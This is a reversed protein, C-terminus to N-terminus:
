LALQSWISEDWVARNIYCDFVAMNLNWFLIIQSNSTQYGINLHGISEDHKMWGCCWQWLLRWASVRGPRWPGDSGAAFNTAFDAEQIFNRVCHVNHGSFLRFVISVIYVQFCTNCAHYCCDYHCFQKWVFLIIIMWSIHFKYLAQSDNNISEFKEIM